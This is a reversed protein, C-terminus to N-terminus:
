MRVLHYLRRRPEPGDVWASKIRGLAEMRALVPYLVDSGLGTANALEAGSMGDKSSRQLAILIKDPPTRLADTESEHLARITGDDMLYDHVRTSGGWSFLKKIYRGIRM